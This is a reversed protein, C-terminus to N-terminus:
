TPRWCTARTTSPTGSRRAASRSTPSSASTSAWWRPSGSCRGRPSAAPCSSASSRRASTEARRLRGLRGARLRRRPLPLPLDQRWRDAPQAAHLHALGRRPARPEDLHGRARGRSNAKLEADTEDAEADSKLDNAPGLKSFDTADVIFLPGVNDGNGVFTGCGESKDEDTMEVMGSETSTDKQLFLEIPMTVFRRGNRHTVDITHAYWDEDCEPTPDWEAVLEPQSPATIDYVYFGTTFGAADYLYTRGDLPDNQIFTDHVENNVISAEVFTTTPDQRVTRLFPQGNIREVKAIDIGVGNQNSIVYEGPERPKDATSPGEPITHSRVTHIGGEGAIAYTQVHVPNKPDTVDLVEVGPGAQVIANPDPPVTPLFTLKQVSLYAIKGDESIDVFAGCNIDIVLQDCETGDWRSLYKPQAPDSVDFFLVGARPFTVAVAALDKQVDIEGLIVNERDSLEQKLPLFATQEMRCRFNHASIDDHKHGDGIPM